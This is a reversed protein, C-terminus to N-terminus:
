PFVEFSHGSRTRYIGFDRRDTTLVLCSGVAEALTVLTSDAYDMPLDAYKVMLDRGRQLASLDAPILVAGGQLFFDLCAQAGGHVRGLLHISETLVAETSLVKGHWGRYFDVFEQHRTQDRDLISVLGGTDLLLENAM